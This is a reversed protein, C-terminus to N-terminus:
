DAGTLKLWNRGDFYWTVSAKEIFADDIGQHDITPPKPGGYAKYHGVIFDKGVPRIGRSFGIQDATIGQLFIRDEMKAIEQVNRESGNFFVLISSVRNLSCLIVWDLQGSRAFDGRVVNHPKKTFAEQPVTCGRRQLEQVIKGPLEPFASPPLRLIKQDAQDFQRKLDEPLQAFSQGVGIVALEVLVITFHVKM